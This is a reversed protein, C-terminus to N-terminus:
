GAGVRIGAIVKNSSALRAEVERSHALIEAKTQALEISLDNRVHDVYRVAADKARAESETLRRDLAIVEPSVAASETPQYEFAKVNALPIGIRRRTKASYAIIFGDCLELTNGGTSNLAAAGSKGLLECGVALLVTRLFIREKEPQPQSQLEKDKAM